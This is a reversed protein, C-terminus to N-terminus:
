APSPSSVSSSSSDAIFAYPLATFSVVGILVLLARVPPTTGVFRFGEALNGWISKVREPAVFPPRAIM